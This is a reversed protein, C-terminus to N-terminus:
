THTSGKWKLIQPLIGWYVNVKDHLIHSYRHHGKRDGPKSHPYHTPFPQVFQLGMSISTADTNNVKTDGAGPGIGPMSM